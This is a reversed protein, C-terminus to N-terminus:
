SGHGSIRGCTNAVCTQHGSLNANVTRSAGGPACGRKDYVRTVERGNNFGKVYADAGDCRNDNVVLTHDGNRLKSYDWGNTGYVISGHQINGHVHPEYGDVDDLTVANTAYLVVVALLIISLLLLGLRKGTTDMYDSYWM